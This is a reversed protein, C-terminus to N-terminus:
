GMRAAMEALSIPPGTVSERGGSEESGGQGSGAQGNERRKRALLRDLILHQRMFSLSM